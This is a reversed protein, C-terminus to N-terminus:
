ELTDEGPASRFECGLKEGIEQGCLARLGDQADCRAALQIAGQHVAQRRPELDDPAVGPGVGAAALALWDM